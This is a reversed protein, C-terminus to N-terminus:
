ILIKENLCYTICYETSSYDTIFAVNFKVIISDTKISLLIQYYIINLLSLRCQALFRPILILISTNYCLTRRGRTLSQQNGDAVIILCTKIVKSVTVVALIGVPCFCIVSFISLAVLCRDSDASPLNFHGQLYWSIYNSRSTSYCLNMYNM